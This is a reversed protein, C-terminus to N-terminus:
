SRSRVRRSLVISLRDIGVFALAAIATGLIAGAVALSHAATHGLAPLSVVFILPGLGFIAPWQTLYLPFSIHGLAQVPATTLWSRLLPLQLTGAALLIAGLTKQTFGANIFCPALPANFDCARQLAAFPTLRTCLYVGFILITAALIPHLIPRREALNLMAAAYGVIFCIMTSRIFFLMSMALALWMLTRSVRGIGILAFIYLSGAAEVAITWLPANFSDVTSRLFDHPLGFWILASSDRYGLVLSNILWESLFNGTPLWNSALWDSRLTHGAIIHYRGLAYFAIAALALSAVAPIGLRIYRSAILQWLPTNTEAFAATLVYGSLVFFVYVASEADYVFHLPSSNIYGFPTGSSASSIALAPLYAAAIHGVFVQMSAIGRIADLYRIRAADTMYRDVAM